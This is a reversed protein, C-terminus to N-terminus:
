LKVFRAKLLSWITLTGDRLPSVQSQGTLRPKYSVPVQAIKYGMRAAKVVIEGEYGFHSEKLNLSLLVPKKFAKFGAVVDFIRKGVLLSTVPSFILNGLTRIFPADKHSVRWALAVDAGKKLADVLLPIEKPSFQYDADIQVIFDGTAKQAAYWFDAGKGYRKNREIVIVREKKALQVTNDQSHADIVIIEILFLKRLSQTERIIKTITASENYTPVIVSVKFINKKKRNM